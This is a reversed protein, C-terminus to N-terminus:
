GYVCHAATLVTRSAILSGGCTFSGGALLAIQHKAEGSVANTGGVVRAIPSNIPEHLMWPHLEAIEAPLPLRLPVEEAAFAAASLCALALIAFKM